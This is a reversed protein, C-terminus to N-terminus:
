FQIKQGAKLLAFFFFFHCLCTSKLYEHVVFLVTILYIANVKTENQLSKEACSFTLNFLYIFGPFQEYVESKVEKSEHRHLFIVINRVNVPLMVGKKKKTYQRDCM